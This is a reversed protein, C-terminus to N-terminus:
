KSVAGKPIRQFGTLAQSPLTLIETLQNRLPETTVIPHKFAEGKKLFRDGSCFSIKPLLFGPQRM